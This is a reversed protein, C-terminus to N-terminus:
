NNKNYLLHAMIACKSQDFKSVIKYLDILDDDLGWISGAIQGVICAVTDADGNMNVAKFIAEKSSTSYYIIHLAMSLADMCYSGIYDPMM